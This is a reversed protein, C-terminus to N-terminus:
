DTSMIERFKHLPKNNRIMTMPVSFHGRKWIFRNAAPVQWADMIALGSEFPTVHDHQGLVSVINKPAM